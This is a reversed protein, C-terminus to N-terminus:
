WFGDRSKYIFWGGTPADYCGFDCLSDGDFDGTIPVTGAYGFSTTWFGDHSKYIFWGGRSADYCGFDSVGDGDFDGTVPVTGAYGFSTTWFGDRSKYIFWGGSQADYCGFDCLGDGDFDGTVPVTDAYGFHNQWPGASSRQIDWQGSPAYYVGYDCLNDGDFDGTIPVTNPYGYLTSWFGDRSKYAYWEGPTSAYCGIDSLGDGDLDNKLPVGVTTATDAGSKSERNGVADTARVLFAYNTRANGPIRRRPTNTTRWLTYANSNVSVYIEFFDIGSGGADSGSWSVEFQRPSRLSLGTMQSVPAQRDIRNTAAPTWIPENVDFVIKAVNTLVLGSAANTRAQVSFMVYGEGCGNTVNPPLFGLLPDEPLEGTIPDIATIVWNLTGNANSFVATVSVTLNSDTPIRIGSEAFAQLGTPVSVETNNFGIEGLEV